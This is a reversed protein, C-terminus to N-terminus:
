LLMIFMYLCVLTAIVCFVVYFTKDNHQKNKKNYEIIEEDTLNDNSSNMLFELEANKMTKSTEIYSKIVLITLLILSVSLLGFGIVLLVAEVKSLSIFLISIIFLSLNVISFIQKKTM